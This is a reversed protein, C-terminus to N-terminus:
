RRDAAALGVALERERGVFGTGGPRHLEVLGM